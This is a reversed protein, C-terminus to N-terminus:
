EKIRFFILMEEEDIDLVVTDHKASVDIKNHRFFAISNLFGVNSSPSKKVEYSDDSGSKLLKMAIIRQTPDYYFDVFKHDKFYREYAVKNVNIRGGKGVTIRPDDISTKRKETFKQFGELSYKAM